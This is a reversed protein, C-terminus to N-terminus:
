YEDSEIFEKLKKSIYNIKEEDLKPYVGVWFSDNMVKDTNKLNEVIRCGKGHKKIEEFAPQKLINGAFLLRTQIKHEELKRVIDDRKINSNDRLTILFGFWSPESKEQPEPLIIKDELEKLGEYLKNHNNRRSEIFGSIKDLQAVGIAAQMDTAKLNYGLHSYIYKHDYGYPLEGLKWKFRKGCTNDQGSSCWCDRGWDRFSKIIDYLQQNSTLVAGGEGTTIHHAPYFSCTSIDGFTGTYKGNYKSGLADCNDEILWLDNEECFVKVKEIDFPNGLTHALFVAKTKKSLANELKSVNINYTRLEIDVFVPVLRNQIIPAITTPFAAAVTIVEDGAKMRKEGLKSSTLASIAILNASSGSNTLACYKAGIFDSLKKEFEDTYRGATLWFELASDVLNIIEREDFVRGAYNIKTKGPIFKGKKEFKIKYYKKVQEFIKGRIDEEINNM